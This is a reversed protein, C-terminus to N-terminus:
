WATLQSLVVGVNGDRRSLLKGLTLGLLKRVRSLAEFTQGPLNCEQHIARDLMTGTQMRFVGFSEIMALPEDDTMLPRLHHQADM